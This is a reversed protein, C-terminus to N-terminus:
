FGNLSLKQKRFALNKPPLGELKCLRPFSWKTQLGCVPLSSSCGDTLQQRKSVRPGLLAPWGHVVFCPCRFLVERSCCRKGWGFWGFLVFFLFLFFFQVLCFLVFLCVLLGSSFWYWVVGVLFIVLVFCFFYLWVRLNGSGSKDRACM